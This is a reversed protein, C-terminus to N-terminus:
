RFRLQPRVTVFTRQSNGNAVTGTFVTEGKYTSGATAIVKDDFHGILFRNSILHKQLIQEM